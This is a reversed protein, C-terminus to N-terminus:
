YEIAVSAPVDVLWQKGERGKFFTKNALSLKSAVNMQMFNFDASCFDSYQLGDHVM